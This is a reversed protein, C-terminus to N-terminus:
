YMLDKIKKYLAGPTQIRWDAMRIIYKTLQVCTYANHANLDYAPMQNIYIFKWGYQRLIGIDRMRVSIKEIHNPKVFQYMIM